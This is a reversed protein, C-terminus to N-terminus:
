ANVIAFLHHCGGSLRADTQEAMKKYDAIRSKFPTRNDAALVATRFYGPDFCISRLGLPSIEAHLTESIGSHIKCIAESFFFLLM